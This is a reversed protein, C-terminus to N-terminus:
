RRARGIAEWVRSATFPPDLHRIGLPALADAVANTVAAPTGIAGGEGVGKAGLPNWPSPTERLASAIPPVNQATPLHYDHFNVALPQGYEDYGVQEYLLEGVAQVVAGVVQGEALLPNVARGCDDVAVIRLIEVEGTEPDVEVAAVYCGFSFVPGPLEFRADTELPPAEGADLRGRAARAALLLASGGVTVSRSAFTGMGEPIEFSDGWRVEVAAPEVGLEDAAIQAFTTEHGQGHPSSGTRVVVRGDPEVRVAATEWGPGVREVYLAVGVGALRGAARAREAEARLAEYGALELAADLAGEYDGSDYTFGLPTAYPFADRPIVNRRRLEVADLGLERAALDVLREIALAAEPRGAGRYPGTPVKNTCVGVVEVDAVPIAYCGTLLQGCTQAAVPTTSYLYAGLDGLVRARLALMRGDAALALEAEIEQGRGQYVALSSETRTEVWKVPRRLRLAALAIAVTEAQPVGKSGFAGGVDPVVVRLRDAPRRLVKTLGALQRHTDQASLWLTLVDSGADYAALVARPEIPAAILRPAAVRASVVRDAAAFAGEVDGSTRRWRLLVNDPAQEHLPPASESARPDILPPLEDVEVVVLEAADAALEATEAVVLAIAQGVYLVRDSALVPHMARVVEAGERTVLPFEDLGEAAAATLVAHVGPLARAATADVGAIRGYAYYSRVFAGHLLEPLKLDGVYQAEGKVFREDEARPLAQGVWPRPPAAVTSM